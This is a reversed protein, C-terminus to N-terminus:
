VREWMAIDSRGEEGVEGTGESDSREVGGEM